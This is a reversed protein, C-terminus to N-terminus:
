VQSAADNNQAAEIRAQNWTKSHEIHGIPRVVKGRPNERTHYFNMADLLFVSAIILSKHEIKIKKDDFGDEFIPTYNASGIDVYFTNAAINQDKIFKWRNKNRSNRLFKTIGGCPHEQVQGDVVKHITFYARKFMECPASIYSCMMSAQFRNGRIQYTHEGTKGYIDVGVSTISFPCVVTGILVGYEGACTKERESKSPVAYVHLSPRFLGLLSFRYPRKMYLLDPSAKSVATKRKLDNMRIM